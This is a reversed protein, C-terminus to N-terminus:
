QVDISVGGIKWDPETKKWAPLAEVRAFWAMVNPYRDMPLRARKTYMLPAAIAFDALTLTEGIIWTRDALHAELVSATAEIGADGRALADLDAPGAGVVGKWVNEWTLIGIAPAFHQASWFMWRNIDVRTQLDRPYLDNDSVQDALYQMIACSEWLVFDGDTLVPIKSNPNLEVLRRRDDASMLNVEVIDLPIGLHEAVLTARRANSSIPNTYLRM